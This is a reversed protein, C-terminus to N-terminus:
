HMGDGFGGSPPMGGGQGGSPPTGKGDPKGGPPMGDRKKKKKDVPPQEEYVFNDTDVPKFAFDAETLHKIEMNGQKVYKALLKEYRKKAKQEKANYVVLCTRHEEGRAKLFDRLQYSYNDRGVLFKTKTDIRASDIAQVNTFYVSEDNFSASIGFMYVKTVATEAQASATSFLLALM